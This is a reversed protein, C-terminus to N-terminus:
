IVRINTLIFVIVLLLSLYYFSMYFLLKIIKYDGIYIKVKVKINIIRDKCESGWKNFKVLRM